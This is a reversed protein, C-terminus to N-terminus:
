GWWRVLGAVLFALALAAELNFHLRFTDWTVDNIGEDWYTPRLMRRGNHWALPGAAALGVATVWWPLGLLPAAALACAIAALDALYARAAGRKGFRVVFTRKGVRRDPGADAFENILIVNLISFALAAAPPVLEPGLRGTQLYFGTVVTLMGSCVAIILEGLGRYCLKLPRGTYFWGCLAGFTGLPLTLPGTGLWHRLALGLPLAAVLLGIALALARSRRTIRGEVLVRIGGSYVSYEDNQLDAEFDYYTNGVNVAGMILFVAAEGVLFVMWNFAGTLYYALAAGVAFPVAAALVIFRVVLIEYYAQFSDPRLREVRERRARQAEIRSIRVAERYSPM